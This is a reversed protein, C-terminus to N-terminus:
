SEVLEYLLLVPQYCSKVCKAKVAEWDGINKITTDDFLLYEYVGVSRSQFISVYHMGYYCVLGRFVYSPNHADGHTSSGHASNGHTSGHTSLNHNEEPDLQHLQFLDSLQISYAILNYFDALTQQPEKAQTWGAPPFVIVLLSIDAILVFRNM